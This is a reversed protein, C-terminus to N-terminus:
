NWHLIWKIPENGDPSHKKDEKKHRLRDIWSDIKACIDNSAIKLDM